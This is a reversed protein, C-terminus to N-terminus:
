SVQIRESVLRRGMSVLVVLMAGVLMWPLATIVWGGAQPHIGAAEELATLRTEMEANEHELSTIQAKKEELSENLAQIAAFAVGNADVPALHVEDEGLNFAAYFDQAMPGM